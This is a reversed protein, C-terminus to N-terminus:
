SVFSRRDPDIFSLFVVCARVCANRKIQFRGASNCRRSILTLRPSYPERFDGKHEQTPAAGPYRLCQIDCREGQFREAAAASCLLTVAIACTTRTMAVASSM